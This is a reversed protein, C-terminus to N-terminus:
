LMPCSLEMGPVVSLELARLECDKPIEAIQRRSPLSVPVTQRRGNFIQILVNGAAIFPLVYM